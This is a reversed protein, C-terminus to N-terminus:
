IPPFKFTYPTVAKTLPTVIFLVKLAEPITDNVFVISEVEEVEPERVTDPPIPIAFDNNIPVVKFTIPVLINAPTVEIFLLRPTEPVRETEETVSVLEGVVPEKVTDPPIPTVFDIYIPPDSTTVPLIEGKPCIVTKFVISEVEDPVPDNIRPPPNPTPLFIYTPFVSFTKPVLENVPIVLKELLTVRTDDATSETADVVSEALVEVPLITVAPPTATAFFMVIPPVNDTNDFAVTIPDVVKNFM